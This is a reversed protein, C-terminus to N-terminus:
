RPADLLARLRAAYLAGPARALLHRAREAARARQGSHHLSEIVLVERELSLAGGPFEDAHRRLFELARAPDSHALERARTLLQVEPALAPEMQPAARATGPQSDVPSPPDLGALALPPQVAPLATESPPIIAGLEPQSASPSFRRTTPKTATSLPPDRGADSAIQPTEAADPLAVPGRPLESPQTAQPASKPARPEAAGHHDGLAERVAPVVAVLAIASTFGLGFAAAVAKSWLSLGAAVAPFLALHAVRRAGRAHSAAPMPRTRPASRLLERALPHASEADKLRTPEASM